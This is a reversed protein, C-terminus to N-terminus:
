DSKKLSNVFELMRSQTDPTVATFRVGMGPFFTYQDSKPCVWAVLGKADLWEGQRDPLSFSVTLETGIALPMTSEIFLGGGGVGTARSEVQSGDPAVYRVKATLTVRPQLRAENSREHQQSFTIYDIVAGWTVTGLTQGDSGLLTITERKADFELSKGQHAKTTIIPLKM